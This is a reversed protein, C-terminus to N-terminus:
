KKYKQWRNVNAEKKVEKKPEEVKAEPEKAPKVKMSEMLLSLEEIEDKTREKGILQPFWRSYIKEYADNNGSAISDAIKVFSAFAKERMEDEEKVTLKNRGVLRKYEQECEVYDRCAKGNFPSSNNPNEFLLLINRIIDSFKYVSMWLDKDKLIDLCISGELSINTHHVKTLFKVLPPSYPYQYTDEGYGYTTKIELVHYQNKYLGVLPKFLIYFREYNDKEVLAIDYGEKIGNQKADLYNQILSKVRKSM